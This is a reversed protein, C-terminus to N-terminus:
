IVHKALIKGGLKTLPIPLKKWIKIAHRLFFIDKPNTVTWNNYPTYMLLPIEKLGIRKKFLAPGSGNISRGYNMVTCGWKQAIKAAELYLLHSSQNIEFARPTCITPAFIELSSVKLLFMGSCLKTQDRILIIKSQKPFTKIIKVFFKKQLPPTGLEKMNQLYLMYFQDLLELGGTLSELKSKTAKKIYDRMRKNASSLFQEELSSNAKFEIKYISYGHFFKSEKISNIEPIQTFYNFKKCYNLFKEIIINKFKDNISFISGYFGSFHLPLACKGKILNRYFVFPISAIIKGDEKLLAIKCKVNFTEKIVQMWEFDHFINPINKRQLYDEKNVEEFNKIYFNEKKIM